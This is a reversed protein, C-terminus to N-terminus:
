PTLWCKEFCVKDSPHGSGSVDPSTEYHFIARRSRDWAIHYLDMSQVWARVVSFNQYAERSQDETPIEDQIEPPLGTTAENATTGPAQPMMYCRRSMLETGQWAENAVDDQHHVVARTQLRIQFSHRRSYFLWALSPNALTQQAKPSRLDAHFQLWGHDRQVRRLTV